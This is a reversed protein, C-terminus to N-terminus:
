RFTARIIAGAPTRIEVSGSPPQRLGRGAKGTLMGPGAVRLPVPTAAGDEGILRAEGVLADAGRPLAGAHDTVWVTVDHGGIIVEVHYPGANTQAGGHPGIPPAHAGAATSAALALCLALPRILPRIM